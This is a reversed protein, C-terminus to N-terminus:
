PLPGYRIWVNPRFHSSGSGVAEEDVNGALSILRYCVVPKIPVFSLSWTMSSRVFEIFKQDPPNPPFQGVVVIRKPREDSDQFIYRFLQGLAEEVCDSAYSASKVEYFVIETPLLLKIDVWNEEMVVAGEGYQETLKQLLREQIKNHKLDAIYSRASKRVEPTTNKSSAAKRNPKKPACPVKPDTTGDNADKNDGEKAGYKRYLHDMFSYIDQGAPKKSILLAQITSIKANQPSFMGFAAAIRTLVDRKFIPVLRENSYLSAVKWKFWDPIPIADVKAFEGTQAYAIIQLLATKVAAFAAARDSGFKPLWTYIEDNSFRQSRKSPDKRRYIGFKWSYTGKISGLPRMKTEVWYTFTGKNGVDVYQELSMQRVNEEPWRDLFEELLERRQQATIETM